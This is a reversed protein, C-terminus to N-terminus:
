PGRRRIFVVEDGPRLKLSHSPLMIKGQRVVLMPHCPGGVRSSLSPLLDGLHGEEEVRVGEVDVYGRYYMEALTTLRVGWALESVVVAASRSPNVVEKIGLMHCVEAYREDDIRVIIRSRCGCARAALAVMVNVNGRGTLALLVDCREVGAAKLVEMHTADGEVVKVGLEERLRSCTHPDKEVVVVEEGREKLRRAVARGM